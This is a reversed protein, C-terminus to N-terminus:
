QSPNLRPANVQTLHCTVSHSGMHCTVNNNTTTTMVLGDPVAYIPPCFIGWLSSSNWWVRFRSPDMERTITSLWKISQPMVWPRSDNGVASTNDVMTLRNINVSISLSDLQLRNQSETTPKVPWFVCGGAALYQLLMAGPCTIMLPKIRSQIKVRKLMYHRQPGCAVYLTKSGQSCPAQLGCTQSVQCLYMVILFLTCTYCDTM